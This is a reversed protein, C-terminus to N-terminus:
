AGARLLAKKVAAIYNSTIQVSREPATALAIEDDVWYDGDPDDPPGRTGRIFPALVLEGAKATTTVLLGSVGSIWIALSPEEEETVEYGQDRAWDGLHDLVEGTWYGLDQSSPPFFFFFERPLHLTTGEEAPRWRHHPSIAAQHLLEAAWDHQERNGSHYDKWAQRMERLWGRSGRSDPGLEEPYPPTVPRTM